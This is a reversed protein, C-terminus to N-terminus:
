TNPAHFRKHTPVWINVQLFLVRTGITSEVNFCEEETDGDTGRLWVLSELAETRKKKRLLWLPTEPMFYLFIVLLAPFVGGIFALLNWQCLVGALYSIVFGIVIALTGISYFGARWTKTPTCDRRHIGKCFCFKVTLLGQSSPHDWHGSRAHLEKKEKLFHSIVSLLHAVMNRLRGLLSRKKHMNLFLVICEISLPFHQGRSRTLLILLIIYDWVCQDPNTILAM